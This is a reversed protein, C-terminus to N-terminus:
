ASISLFHNIFIETVAFSGNIVLESTMPNLHVRTTGIIGANPRNEDNAKLECKAILEPVDLKQYLDVQKKDLTFRCQPWRDGYVTYGCNIFDHKHAKMYEEMEIRYEMKCEWREEYEIGLIKKIGIQLANSFNVNAQEAEDNLWAPITCNKRICRNERRHMYADVDADVYNIIANKDNTKIKTIDSAAPIIESKKQREIVNICIIERAMEIADELNQGQTMADLDPVEVFYPIKDETKYFIVPYIMKM